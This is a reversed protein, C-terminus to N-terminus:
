RSSCSRSRSRIARPTSIDVEDFSRPRPLPEESFAGQHRAASCPEAACRARARGGAGGAAGRAATRSGSSSRSGARRAVSSRASQGEAHLRGHPLEADARVRGAHREREPPLRPVRADRGRAEAGRRRWDSWGPPVVTRNDEDGYGNLYKGVFATYYGAAQLWVPLASTPNFGDYGGLPPNNGLVGHNHTSAPSSPRARPAASCVVRVLEDFTVGQRVLYRQVNPMFRLPDVTQDDTEIVVINPRADAQSTEALARRVGAALAVLASAAVLLAIRRATQTRADLLGGEETPRVAAWSGNYSAPSRSRLSRARRLSRGARPVDRAGRRRRAPFTELLMCENPFHTHSDPLALGTM